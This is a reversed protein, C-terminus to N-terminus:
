QYISCELNQDRHKLCIGIIVVGGGLFFLGVTKPPGFFVSVWFFGFLCFLFCCVFLFVFLCFLLCCLVFCVFFGGCFGATQLIDM